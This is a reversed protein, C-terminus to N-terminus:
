TASGPPKGKGVWVSVIAALVLGGFVVQASSSPRLEWGFLTVASIGAKTYLAVLNWVGLGALGLAAFVIVYGLPRVTRRRRFVGWGLIAGVALFVAVAIADVVFQVAHDYSEPFVLLWVPIALVFPLVIWVFCGYKSWFGTPEAKATASTDGPSVERQRGSRNVVQNPAEEYKAPWDALRKALSPWGFAALLVVGPVVVGLVLLRPVALILSMIALSAVWLQFPLSLLVGPLVLGMRDVAVGALALPLGALLLGGVPRLVWRHFWIRKVWRFPANSFCLRGLTDPM